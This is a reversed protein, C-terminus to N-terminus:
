EALKQSKSISVEVLFRVKDFFYNYYMTYSYTNIVKNWMKWTETFANDYM